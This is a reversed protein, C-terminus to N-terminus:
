SQAIMGKLTAPTSGTIKVMVYDGPKFGRDPFVVVKNGSTRGMLFDPSRKSSGEVLVELVNGIDARNSKASMKQQLAIIESLRSAKVEDPVDDPYRKSALTGSRESYRFMFAADFAAEQMLSITDAHDADTESCFGTIIDTSLTCDPLFQRISAVRELYWDRTYRRNMLKLIRNSGSQVALHVSRCINPYSAMVHLLDDSLDKPHSTTFRVRLLPSIAAVQGMLVPFSTVIGDADWHYSNVNQGLLTVERFGLGFLRAAEEVVTRPDRSRERGRTFPVVCYACFNECGRMISIFSSVGNSHFKVPQIDDYTEEISLEINATKQGGGVEALLTPLVRYADPGAVLDVSFGSELLEDKLREAMCGIVGILMSHNKKRFAQLERLRKWIRQEAKDRISCTNILILGAQSADDVLHYGADLLVSAVIESDSFNMQCGYTEIYFNVGEPM